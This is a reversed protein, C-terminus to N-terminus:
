KKDKKGLANLVTISLIRMEDSSLPETLDVGGLVNDEALLAHISKISDGKQYLGAIQNFLRHPNTDTYPHQAFSPNELEFFYKVENAVYEGGVESRFHIIKYVLYDVMNQFFIHQNIFNVSFIM